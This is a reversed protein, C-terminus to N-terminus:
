IEFNKFTKNDDEGFEKIFPLFIEERLYRLSNPIFTIQNQGKNYSELKAIEIHNATARIILDPEFKLTLKYFLDFCDEKKIRKSQIGTFHTSRYTFNNTSPYVNWWEEFKEKIEEKFNEKIKDSKLEKPNKELEELQRLVDLGAINLKLNDDIWMKRKLASFIHKHQNNLEGENKIKLMGWYVSLDIRLTKLENILVESVEQYNFM